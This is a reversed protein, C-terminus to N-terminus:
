DNEKEEYSTITITTAVREKELVSYRLMPFNNDELENVLDLVAMRHTKFGDRSVSCGLSDESYKNNIEWKYKM